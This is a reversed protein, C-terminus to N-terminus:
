LPLRYGHAIRQDLQKLKEQPKKRARCGACSEMAKLQLETSEELEDKVAKDLNAYDDEGLQEGEILPVTVFGSSTRKLTFGQEQAAKNLEELASRAEQFEEYVAKQREYDEGDFGQPHEAKFRGAARGCPPM